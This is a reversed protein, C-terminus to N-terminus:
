SAGGHYVLNRKPVGPVCGDPKEYMWIQVPRKTTYATLIIAVMDKYNGKTRDVHFYVEGCPGAKDLAFVFYSRGAWHGEADGHISTVYGSIPTLSQAYAPSATALMGAFTLAMAAFFTTKHKIM